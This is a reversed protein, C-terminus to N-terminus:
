RQVLEEADSDSLTLGANKAQDLLRDIDHGYDEEKPSPKMAAVGKLYAKLLLEIAHALLIHPGSSYVNQQILEVDRLIIGAHTKWEISIAMPSDDTIIDRTVNTTLAM